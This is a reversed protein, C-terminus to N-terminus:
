HVFGVSLGMNMALGKTVVRTLWTHSLALALNGWDGFKWILGFVLSDIGLKL